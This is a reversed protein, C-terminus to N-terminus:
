SKRCLLRLATPAAPTIKAREDIQHGVLWLTHDASSVLPWNPRWPASIKRNVMIEKLSASRGNMGLPTM